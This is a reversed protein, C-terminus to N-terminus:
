DDVMVEPDKCNAGDICINYKYPQSRATGPRPPGADCRNEVCVPEGSKFPSERPFTVELKGSKSRWHAFDRGEKLRIRDPKPEVETRSVTPGPPFARVLKVKFCEGSCCGIAALSLAPLALGALLSPLRRWEFM